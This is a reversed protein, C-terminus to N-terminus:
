VVRGRVGSGSEKVEDKRMCVDKGLRRVVRGAVVRYALLSTGNWKGLNQSFRYM